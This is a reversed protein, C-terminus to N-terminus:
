LYLVFSITNGIVEGDEKCSKLNKEYESQQGISPKSMEFDKDFIQVKLKIPGAFILSDHM